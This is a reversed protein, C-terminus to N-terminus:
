IVQSHFDPTWENSCSLEQIFGNEFGLKELAQLVINYEPQIIGRNIEPYKDAKWTPYYQAMLSIYTEEGLTDAIWRLNDIVGAVNNPLVLLRIILGKYAIGNENCKLQGVQRKMEAVAKRAIAPYDPAQSYKISNNSESYKLDPLYIDVLGELSKLVEVDEYANSNWVIPISLGNQKATKIVDILQISYHSPTVLNINHASLRQLELLIQVCEDNTIDRGWGLDSITYNQCFVCRLNCHSFFLAGSGNTGSLVPEEGFHLQHLNIKINTDAGCFGKEKYRNIECSRPCIQCNTLEQYIRSM